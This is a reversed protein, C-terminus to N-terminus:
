FILGITVWLQATIRTMESYELFIIVQEVQNILGTNDPMRQVFITGGDGVITGNNADTFSVGFLGATTGSSKTIWNQGADTTMLITGGAGVATGTNSDIFDVDYLHQITGSSQLNWFHEVM